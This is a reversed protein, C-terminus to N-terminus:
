STYVAVLTSFFTQDEVGDGLCGVFQLFESPVIVEAMGVLCVCVYEGDQWM